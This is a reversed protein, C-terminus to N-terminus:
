ISGTSSFLAPPASPQPTAQSMGAAALALRTGYRTMLNATDMQAQTQLGAVLTQQAQAQEPALNPDVAIQPKPQSGEM